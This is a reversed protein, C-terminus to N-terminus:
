NRHFKDLCSTCFTHGCGVIIRPIRMGVNFKLGCFYCFDLGRKAYDAHVSPKFEAEREKQM